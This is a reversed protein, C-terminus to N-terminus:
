VSTLIAWQAVVVPPKFMINNFEGKLAELYAGPPDSMDLKIRNALASSFYHHIAYKRFSGLWTKFSDSTGASRNPGTEPMEPQIVM